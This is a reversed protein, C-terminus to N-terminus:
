ESMWDGVRFAFDFYSQVLKLFMYGALAIWLAGFLSLLARLLIKRMRQHEGRYMEAARALMEPLSGAVEGANAYQLVERTFVRTNALAQALSAGAGLEEGMALLRPTLVANGAAYASEKLATSLPVGARLMMSLTFLYRDLAALRAVRGVLPLYLVVRQQLRQFWVMASLTFWLVALAVLAETLPLTTLRLQVKLFAILTPLDWGQEPIPAEFFRLFPLTLLVTPLFLVAYLTTHVSIQARTKWEDEYGAAIQGFAEPLAGVTEAARLVGLHWPYLLDPRRALVATIPQGAEVAAALDRALARFSGPAHLELQRCASALNVGARTLTELGRYFVAMRRVHRISSRPVTIRRTSPESASPPAEPRSPPPPAPVAPGGLPGLASQELPPPTPKAQKLPEIAQWRSAARTRGEGRKGNGPELEVVLRDSFPKECHYCTTRKISNEAGCHPCRQMRM